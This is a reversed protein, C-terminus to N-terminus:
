QQRNLWAVLMGMVLIAPTDFLIQKVALSEPMPQVAYYLMYTPIPMLVAIMIGFRFGQGLWPKDNRGERYIWTLAIGMLIHAILMFHFYNVQDEESRYLDPLAMYDQSLLFGHVVFGAMLTAISM